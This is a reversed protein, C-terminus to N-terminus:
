TLNDTSFLVFIIHKQRNKAIELCYFDATQQFITFSILNDNTSFNKRSFVISFVNLFYWKRLILNESLASTLKEGQGSKLASTLRTSLHALFTTLPSLNVLASLSFIIKRFHDKKLTNEITKELFIKEM